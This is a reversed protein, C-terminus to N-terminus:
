NNICLNFNEFYKQIGTFIGWALNNQYEETKLLKTEEINSLFGCEVIVSPIKIKDMIYVGSIKTAKRNNEYNINLNINNQINEALLKSNESNKQYFTQWGRYVEAPPFKNLHLSVFIDAESENGIIVRNLIDSIKKDHISKKDIDYIGNEDSRTLLVRCGIQELLAQLKLTIQLNIEQETTSYIGEAGQDPKGHGADLIVVKNTAFSANTSISSENKKKINMYGNTFILITFISILLFIKNKKFKM